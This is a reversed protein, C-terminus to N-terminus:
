VHARHDRQHDGDTGEFRFIAYRDDQWVGHNVDILVQLGSDYEWITLTKTEAERRNERCAAAVPSFATPIGWSTVCLTM